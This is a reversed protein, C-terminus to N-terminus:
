WDADSFGMVVDNGIRSYKLHYHVTGSVYRLVRKLAIWDNKTPNLSRQALRNVAFAIDPRTMVALYSLKGLLKLFEGRDFPESIDKVNGSIMPEKVSNCNHMGYETLIDNIYKTQHLTYSGDEGQEINM